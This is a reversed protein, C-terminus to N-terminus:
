AEMVGIVLIDDTQECDGRWQDITSNIEHMQTETDLCSISCILERFRKPKFKSFKGNEREGFQDTIGDTFMYVHDGKQLQIENNTFASSRDKDVAIPIKDPKYETLQGDNVIWLPRYAGAYSIKSKKTDFICVAIDMGDHIDENNVSGRTLSETIRYRLKTLVEAANIHKLDIRAVISNLFSIGLMSLAAGPIGHGTCDATAVFKYGYAETVWYFDGSVEELPRWLVFIKNFIKQVTEHSPMLSSQFRSAIDLNIVIRLNISALKNRQRKMEMTQETILESQLQSEALLANLEENTAQIEDTQHQLIKNYQRNKVIQHTFLAIIAAACTLIYILVFKTYTLQGSVSEFFKTRKEATQIMGHLQDDLEKRRNYRSFDLEFESIYIRKRDKELRQSLEFLGKYNQNYKFCSQLAQNLLNLSVLPQSQKEIKELLMQMASIYNGSMMMHEARAIQYIDDDGIYGTQDIIYKGKNYYYYSSDAYEWINSTIYMDNYLLTLLGCTKVIFILDDIEEQIKLAQLLYQKALHQTVANDPASLQLTLGLYYYDRGTGRANHVELDNTLAKDLYELAPKYQQIQTCSQGITRYIQATNALDRDAEFLDLAKLKCNIGQEFRGLGIYSDGCGSMAMAQNVPRNLGKYIEDAEKFYKPALAFNGNTNYYWGIVVCSSAVTNIDNLRKALYYASLSYKIISDMVVHNRSLDYYNKLKEDNEPMNPLLATISDMEHNSLVRQASAATHCLAMAATLVVAITIKGITM